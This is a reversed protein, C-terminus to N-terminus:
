LSHHSNIRAVDPHSSLWAAIEALRANRHTSAVVRRVVELDEPYDVTLRMHSLDPARQLNARKLNAADSQMWPTVHERDYADRANAWARALAEATFIECEFGYPYTRPEVNSAYDAGERARLAILDGIVEPDALPCDGTMRIILDAKALAQVKVFRELVNELSGRFVEIGYAQAADVLPKDSDLESTALIVKDIAACQAVRAAMFAVMPLDDLEAIVKGPFRSSSMRAQLIAITRM